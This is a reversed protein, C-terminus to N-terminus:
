SKIQRSGRMRLNRGLWISLMAFSPGRAMRPDLIRPFGKNKEKWLDVAEKLILQVLRELTYYEGIRHREGREVVEQYIEKFFDEDIQSFDYRLLEKAINCFLKLAESSVKSHM